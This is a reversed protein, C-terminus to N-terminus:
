GYYTVLWSCIGNKLMDNCIKEASEINDYPGDNNFSDNEIDHWRVIIVKKNLSSETSADFQYFKKEKKTKKM